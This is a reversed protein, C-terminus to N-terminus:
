IRTPFVINNKEEQVCKQNCNNLSRTEPTIFSLFGRALYDRTPVNSNISVRSSNQKTKLSLTPPYTASYIQLIHLLPWLRSLPVTLNSKVTMQKVGSCVLTLNFKLVVPHNHFDKNLQIVTLYSIWNFTYVAPISM